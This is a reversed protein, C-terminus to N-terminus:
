RYARSSIARVVASVGIIRWAERANIHNFKVNLYRARQKETPILTRFPIDNGNGGWYYGPGGFEIDGFYGPGRGLFPITTFDASIDSSFSVSASYFNNQDFIMSSERIQKMASPDGFAQPSWQIEASIGKYVEIPGSIFKRAIYVTVENDITNKAIIVTEFPVTGSSERYNKLNTECLSSNLEAIM